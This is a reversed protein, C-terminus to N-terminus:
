CMSIHKHLPMEANEEMTFRRMYCDAESEEGILWERYIGEAREVEEAEVEDVNSVKVSGTKKKSMKDVRIM